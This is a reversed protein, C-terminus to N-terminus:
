GAQRVSWRFGRGQRVELELAQRYPGKREAPLERVEVEVVNVVGDREGLGRGVEVTMGSWRM